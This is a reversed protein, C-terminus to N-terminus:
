SYKKLKETMKMKMLGIQRPTKHLKQAIQAMTSKPKGHGGTSYDLILQEEPTMEYYGYYLLDSNPNMQSFAMEGFSSELGLDKRLEKEMRGVERPSWGLEDALEVSSPERGKAQELYSKTKQFFDIKTARSEPIRGINQYTSVYRYVKQLYNNVHTGLAAGANPNYTEFAHIAQKRAEAEIASQPLPAARFQMVRKQILPNMSELLQTLTDDSKTKKWTKWLDLEIERPM